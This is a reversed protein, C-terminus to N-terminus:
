KNITQTVIQVTKQTIQKILVTKNKEIKGISYSSYNRITFISVNKHISVNYKSKLKLILESLKRYPDEICVSFSIASNQILNVKM